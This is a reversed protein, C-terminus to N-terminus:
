YKYSKGLPSVFPYHTTSADLLKKFIRKTISQGQLKYFMQPPYLANKDQSHGVIQFGLGGMLLFLTEFQQVSGLYFANYGGRKTCRIYVVFLLSKLFSYLIFHPAILRSCYLHSAHSIHSCHLFCKAFCIPQIQPVCTFPVNSVIPFLMFFCTVFCIHYFYPVNPFCIPFMTLFMIPFM